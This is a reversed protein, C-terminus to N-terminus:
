NIERGAGRAEWEGSGMRRKGKEGEGARRVWGM